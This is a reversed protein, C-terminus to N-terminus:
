GYTTNGKDRVIKFYGGEGWYSGWSNRVIWYKDLKDDNSNVEEGYGVLIVGHNIQNTTPCERIVGKRYSYLDDADVAIAIPAIELANMYAEENKAVTRYGRGSTKIGPVAKTPDYACTGGRARYKYDTETMIGNDALYEYVNDM